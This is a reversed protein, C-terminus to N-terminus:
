DIGCKDRRLTPRIRAATSPSKYILVGDSSPRIAAPHKDSVLSWPRRKLFSRCSKGIASGSRYGTRIATFHLVTMQVFKQAIDFLSDKVQAGAEFAHVANLLALAVGDGLRAATTIASVDACRVLTLEVSMEPARRARVM